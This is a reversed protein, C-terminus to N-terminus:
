KSLLIQLYDENKQEVKMTLELKGFFENLLMNETFSDKNRWDVPMTRYLSFEKYLEKLSPTSCLFFCVKQTLAVIRKLKQYSFAQANCVVSYLATDGDTLAERRKYFKYDFPELFNDCISKVSETGYDGHASVIIEDPDLNTEHTLIYDGCVSLRTRPSVDGCLIIIDVNDILCFLDRKTM